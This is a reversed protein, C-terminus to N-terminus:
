AEDYSYILSPMATATSAGGTYTFDCGLIAVCMGGNPGTSGSSVGTADFVATSTSLITYGAPTSGNSGSDAPKSGSSAQVYSAVAVAKYFCLIGTATGSAINVRRNSITTTGAVTVALVFSKIWSYNTGTTTPIPVPATGALSDERSWKGGGEASAWSVSAGTGLQAQTTATSV